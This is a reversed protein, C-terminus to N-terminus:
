VARKVAEFGLATPITPSEWRSNRAHPALHLRDFAPRAVAGPRRTVEESSFSHVPDGDRRMGTGVYYHYPVQRGQFSAKGFGYVTLRECLQMLVFTAVYRCWVGRRESEV